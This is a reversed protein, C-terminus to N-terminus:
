RILDFHLRDVKGSLSHIKVKGAVGRFDDTGGVVNLRHDRRGLDGSVNIDGFGGVDGNLHAVARCRIKRINEKFKCRGWDRGVRDHRNRRNLLHDKFRFGNHTRQGSTQKAIVSFHHDFSASAPIALVVAALGALVGVAIPKRM